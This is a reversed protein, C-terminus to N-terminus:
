PNRTFFEDLVDTTWDPEDFQIFHGATPIIKLESGPITRHLSLSIEKGLYLDADGRIILTPVPLESLRGTIETLDRNDLCKAFHLFAKRGERTRLPRYFQALLERTLKGKHFLGRRIIIEFSGLDMSAMMLQRLIPTRMAIIPQVPWYDFAVTNLVTLSAVREPHNVTFIQAIGGGLDHGVLHIRSVGLSDLIEALREAHAKISYSVDLPKDSDGCGLLDFAFVEHKQALRPIIDQWLFSYTTIGHLLVVPSGAGDHLYAIAHPGNKVFRKELFGEKQKL